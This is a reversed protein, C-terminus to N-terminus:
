KPQPKVSSRMLMAAGVGLIGVWEFGAPVPITQSQIGLGIMALASRLGGTFAGEDMFLSKIYPFM